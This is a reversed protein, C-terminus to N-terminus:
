KLLSETKLWFNAFSESEFQNRWCQLDCDLRCYLDIRLCNNRCGACSDIKLGKM